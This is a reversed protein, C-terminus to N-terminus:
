TRLGPDGTPMVTLPQRGVPDEIRCAESHGFLPMLMRAEVTRGPVVKGSTWSSSPQVVMHKTCRPEFVPGSLGTIAGAGRGM